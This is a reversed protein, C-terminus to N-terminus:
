LQYENKLNNNINIMNEKFQKKNFVFLFSEFLTHMLAFAYHCVSIIFVLIPYAIIKGGIGEMEKFLPIMRTWHIKEKKLVIKLLSTKM